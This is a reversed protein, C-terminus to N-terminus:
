IVCASPCSSSFSTGGDAEVTVNNIRMQGSGVCSRESRVRTGSQGQDRRGLSTYLYSYRKMTTNKKHKTYHNMEDVNSQFILVASIVSRLFDQFDQVDQSCMEKFGSVRQRLSLCVCVDQLIHCMIVHLRAGTM